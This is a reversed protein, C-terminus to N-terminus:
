RPLMRSKIVALSIGFHRARKFLKRNPDRDVPGRGGVFPLYDESLQRVHDSALVALTGVGATACM